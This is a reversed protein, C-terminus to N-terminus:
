GNFVMGTRTWNRAPEEAKGRVWGKHGNVCEYEEEFSGETTGGTSDNMTTPAGCYDCTMHLEGCYDCTM